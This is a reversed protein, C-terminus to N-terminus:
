VTARARTKSAERPVPTRDHLGSKRGEQEGRDQGPGTGKRCGLWVGVLSDECGFRCHIREKRHLSRRWLADTVRGGRVPELTAAFGFQDGVQAFLAPMTRPPISVAVEACQEM